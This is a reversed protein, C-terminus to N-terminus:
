FLRVFGAKKADILTSKNVALGSERPKWLLLSNAGM